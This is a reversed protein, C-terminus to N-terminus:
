FFWSGIKRLTQSQGLPTTATDTNAKRNVKKYKMWKHFRKGSLLPSSLGSPTPTFVTESEKPPVEPAALEVKTESTSMWSPMDQTAIPVTPVKEPFSLYSLSDRLKTPTPDVHHEHDRKQNAKCKLIERMAYLGVTKVQASTVSDMLPLCRLLTCWHTYQTDLIDNMSQVNNGYYGVSASQFPEIPKPWPVGDASSVIKTSACCENPCKQLSEMDEIKQLLAAYNQPVYSAWPDIVTNDPVPKSSIYSHQTNQIPEPLAPLPQMKMQQVTVKTQDLPKKTNTNANTHQNTEEKWHELDDIQVSLRRVLNTLDDLSTYEVKPLPEVKTKKKSLLHLKRFSQNGSLM